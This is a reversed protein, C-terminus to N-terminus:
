DELYYEMALTFEKVLKIFNRPPIEAPTVYFRKILGRISRKKKESFKVVLTEESVEMLKAWQMQKM